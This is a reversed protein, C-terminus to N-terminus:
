PLTTEFKFNIKDTGFLSEFAAQQALDLGFMTNLDEKCKVSWKAEDGTGYIGNPPDGVDTGKFSASCGNLGSAGCGVSFSTTGDYGYVAVCVHNKQTVKAGLANRVVKYPEYMQWYITGYQPGGADPDVDFQGAVYSYQAYIALSTISAQIGSGPDVGNNFAAPGLDLVDPSNQAEIRIAAMLVIGLCIKWHNSM